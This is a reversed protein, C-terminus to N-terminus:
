MGMAYTNFKEETEQVQLIIDKLQSLYKSDRSYIAMLQRKVSEVLFWEFTNESVKAYKKIMKLCRVILSDVNEIGQRCNIVFFDTTATKTAETYTRGTAQEVTAITAKAYEELVSDTVDVVIAMVQKCLIPYLEKGSFCPTEALVNKVDDVTIKELEAVKVTLIAQYVGFM